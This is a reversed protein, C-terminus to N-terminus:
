FAYFAGPAVAPTLGAIGIFVRRGYFFPLGWDFTTTDGITGALTPLVHNVGTGFLGLANDISFNVNLTQANAGALTASFNLRSSPCYFGFVNFGPCSPIASSDFYLGNSGSDIFSSTMSKSGLRTTVNGDSSATLVTRTAMQNNSQTGIGFILSGSLSPAGSLSAAPLDILIGNNDTAFLPVPNKVQQAISARTNAVNTCGAHTCTYYFGNNTVTTCGSGCDERFFDLGIIGNAGAIAATTLATGGVSCASALSNFAPDGMVQIPVNKATMGALVVDAKVVPGWAFSNDVFQVCNLLPLGGTATQRSLNLAPAMVSALIRLGTSGTDVLVHNITQCQTPSDTVSAGPNCITVDTYLRNVNYGTNQPGSDVYIGLQNKVVPAVPVSEGGGGGGGCATVLSVVWAMVAARFMFKNCCM